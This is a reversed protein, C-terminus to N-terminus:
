PPAETVRAPRKILVASVVLVWVFLVLFGIFAIALILLPATVASVWGLWRPFANRPLAAIAVSAVLLIAAYTGSVFLLFGATEFYDRTELDLQFENEMSAFAAARSIANAVLVLAAYGVAGVLALTGLASPPPDRRAILTRVGAAFVLFCLVAAAIFFFAVAEKTRAGSDAYHERIEADTNGVEIGLAFAGVYLAVYAVGAIGAWPEWGSRM